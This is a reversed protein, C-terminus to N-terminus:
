IDQSGNKGIQYNMTAGPKTKVVIKGPQRVDISELVKDLLGDDKQADDLMRLALSMDNEPLKIVVGNELAINWRREGVWSARRVRAEIDPYVALETLLAALHDPADAGDVVLVGDFRNLNNKTIITGFRDILARDGKYDWIAAPQKERIGVYITYPLRRYVSVSDIWKIESLLAQAKHPDFAFLADGKQTNLLGMILAPDTNVRGEVLIDRVVFGMDASVTIMRNQAWDISKTVTGSVWLWAGLWITFGAILVALGARRGWLMVYGWFGNPTKRRQKLSKQHSKSKRKLTIM